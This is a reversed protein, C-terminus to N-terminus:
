INQEYDEEEEPTMLNNEYRYLQALSVQQPTCLHPSEIYLHYAKERKSAPTDDEGLMQDISRKGQVTYSPSVIGISVKAQFLKLYKFLDDRISETASRNDNEILDILYALQQATIVPRLKKMHTM